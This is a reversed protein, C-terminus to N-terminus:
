ILFNFIMTVIKFFDAQDKPQTEWGAALMWSLAGLVDWGLPCLVESLPAACSILM